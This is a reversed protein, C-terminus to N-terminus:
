FVATALGDSIVIAMDFRAFTNVYTVVNVPTTMTGEFNVVESISQKGSDVIDNANAFLSTELAVAFTGKYDSATVGADTTSAATANWNTKTISTQFNAATVANFTKLVEMLSSEPTKVPQSPLLTSGIRYQYSLGAPQYRGSISPQRVEIDNSGGKPALRFTSYLSNLSSFRAPVQISFGSQSGALNTEFGRFSESSIRTVGGGVAHAEQMIAGCVDSSLEIFQCVYSVDELTYSVTGASSDVMAKSPDELTIQLRLSDSQMMYLPLYKQSAPSLIGSLAIPLAIQTGATGPKIGIRKAKSGVVNANLYAELETATAPSSAPNIAPAPSEDIGMMASLVGSRTTNDVTLDTMLTHLVNYNDISELLNSGHYVEIRHIISAASYDLATTSAGGKLLFTLYSQSQDLLTNASCPIMFEVVKSRSGTISTAGHQAQVKYSYSRGGVAPPRLNYQAAKTVSM